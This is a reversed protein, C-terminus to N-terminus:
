ETETKPTLVQGQDGIPPLGMACMVAKLTEFAAPATGRLQESIASNEQLRTKYDALKEKTVKHKSRENSYKLHSKELSQQACELQEQTEDLEDRLREIQERAEQLLAIPENGSQELQTKQIRLKHAQDHAEELEFELRKIRADREEASDGINARVELLKTETLKLQNRLKEIEESFDPRPPKDLEALLRTQETEACSLASEIVSKQSIAERRAQQEIEYSKVAIDKESLALDRAANSASLESELHKIRAQMWETSALRPSAAHSSTSASNSNYNVPNVHNPELSIKILHPIIM